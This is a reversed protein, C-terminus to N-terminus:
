KHNNLYCLSAIITGISWAQSDCSDRCYAGDRNTLEPLSAYSSQQIYTLDLTKQAKERNFLEPAFSMAVLQNPRFQYDTYQSSSGVTDKYIYRRRVFSTNIKYKKDESSSPIYYFLEFNDQILKQWESFKLDSGSVKVSSHPYIGSQNIKALWKLTSFLMATIEIPAGDRPTAPDGYNHAKASEGMKDMWTGCNFQNGGYLFGNDRNLTININFGEDKMKEDIERGAFPERFKIGQAHCQMIEQILEAVTSYPQNPDSPFLRFVRTALFTKRETDSALLDSYDQISKLYWWTSDRANYRPRNGSDLLNPILGFQTSSGYGVILQKAEDLRGTSLMVGRLAIFTDRGWSRMYGACFHPLGACLSAQPNKFSELVIPNNILPTCVGYFEISALALAKVFWNSEIVFPSMLSIAKDVISRYATLVVANFYKPIFHRPIQKVLWFSHNFWEILPKYAPNNNLRMMIYDMAWNGERLNNCLPHSLDNWESIRNLITAFGQIGCFPLTGYNPINYGGGGNVREEEPHKFLITNMDLLTFSRIANDLASVESLAVDLQNMATTCEAPVEGRFLLIAGPPFDKLKLKLNRELSYDNEIYCYKDFVSNGYYTEVDINVGTLLQDNRHWDHSNTIRAGVIFETVKCPINIVEPLLIDEPNDVTFATHAVLFVSRNLKPSFRQVMIVNHEQHIHVESYQNDAMEVHLKNLLTKLPFLGSKNDGSQKQYTRTEHVLDITSPYIEDYGHTSGIASVTMAVIASNPLTDAVTRKQAPTENDHTCDMFLAPPLHPKLSNVDYPQNSVSHFHRGEVTPSVFSAIPQGGYRHCVRGLEWSDHCQMAERILSNIGLRKVFESDAEESGTFLECTVYITPRVARAADLLYQAVNIPTSHCNDIRIAHFLKAMRETYTRMHQWLWPNDEPKQGYRMKVCDGWVIVDRRLYARSDKSAFDVAPNYNFIWGNNALPVRRGDDCEVITFYSALMPKSSSIPGLRPGHAALREYKIRERVNNLIADHDGDYERYLNLNILRLLDEYRQKKEEMTYNKFTANGNLLKFTFELDITMSFREYNPNRILGKKQIQNVLDANENANKPSIPMFPSNFPMEPNITPVTAPYKQNFSEMERSVDLVYYEWLKLPNLCSDGIHTILNDLQELSVISTGEISKSYRNLAQDVEVAAKLHPSNDPNYGAEPHQKLWNSNFSTHNWVLDIMSICGHNRESERIVKELADLRQNQDAPAKGAPWLSPAISLQDFISYCSGSAGIEQVPTYHIMNYGTESATKIYDNWSDLTGLCKTLVTQLVIGDPQLPRGNISLNPHIQFSGISGRKVIKKDSSPSSPASWELYYDFCGHHTIKLNFVIDDHGNYTTPSKILSYQTRSFQAGSAPYNCYLQPQGAAAELGCPVVIRLTGFRPLVLGKNSFPPESGTNGTLTISFVDSQSEGIKKVNNNNATTSTSQQQNLMIGTKNNNNNNNNTTSGLASKDSQNDIM